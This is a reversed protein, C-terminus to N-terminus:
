RSAAASVAAAAAMKAISKANEAAEVTSAKVAAKAASSAISSKAADKVTSTSEHLVKHIAKQADVSAEWALDKVQGIADRIQGQITASAAAAAAAAVEAGADTEIATASVDGGCVMGKLEDCVGLCGQKGKCLDWCKDPALSFKAASTKCQERLAEKVAAREQASLLSLHKDDGGPIGRFAVSAASVLWINIVIKLADVAGM